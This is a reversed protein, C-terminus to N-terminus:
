RVNAEMKIATASRKAGNPDSQAKSQESQIGRQRMKIGKSMRKAGNPQKPHLGAETPHGKPEMNIGKKREYGDVKYTAISCSNWWPM